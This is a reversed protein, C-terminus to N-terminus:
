EGSRVFRYELASVSAAYLAKACSSDDASEIYSALSWSGSYSEIIPMLDADLQEIELSIDM